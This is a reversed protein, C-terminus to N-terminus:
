KQCTSKSFSGNFDLSVSFNLVGLSVSVLLYRKPNPIPDIVLGKPVDSWQFRIVRSLMAAIDPLNFM